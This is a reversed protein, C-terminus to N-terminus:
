RSPTSQQYYPEQRQASRSDAQPLRQPSPQLQVISEIPKVGISIEDIMWGGSVPQFVLVFQVAQPRTAFYGVLHFRGHQDTGPQQTLQPETVLIPSLDFKKQRLSAFTTALDAATNQRKFGDSALDRLVTYNGTINGHNVATVVNKILMVQAPPEPLANPTQASASNALSSSAILGCVLLLQLSRHRPTSSVDIVSAEM